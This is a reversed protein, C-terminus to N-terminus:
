KIRSLVNLYMNHEEVGFFTLGKSLGLCESTQQVVLEVHLPFVCSIVCIKNGQQVMQLGPSAPQLPPNQGACPRPEPAWQQAPPPERLAEWRPQESAGTGQFSVSPCKKSDSTPIASTCGELSLLM